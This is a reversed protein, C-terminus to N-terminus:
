RHTGEKYFPRDVVVAEVATGRADIEVRTGPKALDPRVYGLGMPRNELSPCPGGSTVEGVVVRDSLIRHGARASRKGSVQFGILRKKLGDNKQRLLSERGIFSSKKLRVTWGLGAEFPTTDLSLEHGYLCYGMEMRLTDRAALGTPVTGRAILADWLQGAGETPLYIEFGDEGTYGNRSILVEPLGDVTCRTHAYYRIVDLEESVLPSLIEQARPGQLALQAWVESRDELTVDEPKQRTLWSRVADRNAANVVFLAGDAFRYVTIDDIVGGDERCLPSYLLQDDGIRDLDNTILSQVFRHGGQGGIWFRGMHSVDFIGANGRVAAHEALQGAPYHVPMEWGAFGVMKAGDRRHRDWLVTRRLEVGM